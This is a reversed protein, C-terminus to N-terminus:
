EVISSALEIPEVKGSDESVMILDEPDIDPEEEPTEEVIPNWNDDLERWMFTGTGSNRWQGIGRFLGYDLWEILVNRLKPDTFAIEFKFTTGAPVFESVAIASREGTPGSTRLPRAYTNLKKDNYTPVEEGNDDLYVEPVNFAVKRPSVFINGDIWKKYAKLASSENNKAKALLGCADKFMGRLQYNYIFPLQVPDDSKPCRFENVLTWRGDQEGMIFKAKPWITATRENQTDPDGYPDMEDDEKAVYKLSNPDSPTMGLAMSMLMIEIKMTDKIIPLNEPQGVRDASWVGTAVKKASTKKSSGSGSNAKEAEEKELQECYAEADPLTEEVARRLADEAEAENKKPRGRKPKPAPEVSEAEETASTTKPKRNYTRKPKEATVNSPDPSVEEAAKAKRHYPRKTKPEEEPLTKNPTKNTTKM